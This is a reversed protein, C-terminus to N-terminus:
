ARPPENPARPPEEPATAPSRLTLDRRAEYRDLAKDISGHIDITEVHADRRDVLIHTSGFIADRPDHTESYRKTSWPFLFVTPREVADAERIVLETTQARKFRALAERAHRAASPGDLLGHGQTRDDDIPNM